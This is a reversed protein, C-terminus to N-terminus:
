WHYIQTEEYFINFRIKHPIIYSCCSQSTWHGREFIFPRKRTSVSVIAVEGGGRRVWQGSQDVFVYLGQFAVMVEM